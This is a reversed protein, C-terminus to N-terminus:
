MTKFTYQQDGACFLKLRNSSLQARASEPIIPHGKKGLSRKIIITVILSFFTTWYWQRIM